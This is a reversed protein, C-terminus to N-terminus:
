FFPLQSPPSFPNQLSIGGRVDRQDQKNSQETHDLRKNANKAKPNEAFFMKSYLHELKARPSEKQESKMITELRM